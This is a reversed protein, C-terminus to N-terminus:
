WFVHCDPHPSFWSVHAFYLTIQPVLLFVKMFYHVNVPRIISPPPLISSSPLLYYIWLSKQGVFANCCTITNITNALHITTSGM